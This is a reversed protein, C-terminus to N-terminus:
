AEKALLDLYQRAVQEVQEEYSAFKFGFVEETGSADMKIPLTPQTGDLSFHGAEVEAAFKRRLVDIADDWVIPTSANFSHNGPTVVRSDLALVHVKAVDSGLVSNGNYPWEGKTGRLLGLLIANTSGAQMGETSGTLEDHGFIFGPIVNVVDFAVRNECEGEEGGNHAAIWKDVANLAAVKGAAYAQVENTLEGQADPTRSEPGFAVTYDVSPAGTYYAFPMIAMCSSTLVVRKVNATGAKNAKAASELVHIHNAVANKVFYPEYQEPPQPTGAGFSPVPSAIHVIYTVDQVHEDFAGPLAMGPVVVFSLTESPPALAKVSATTIIKPEASPSRVAARVRYGGRLLELLTLYGVFGTAGTLLVLPATSSSAM